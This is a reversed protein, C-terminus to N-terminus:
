AWHGTEPHTGGELLCFAITMKQILCTVEHGLNSTNCMYIVKHNKNKEWQALLWLIFLFLIHCYSLSKKISFVPIDKPIKRNKRLGGLHHTKMVNNNNNNNSNSLLM